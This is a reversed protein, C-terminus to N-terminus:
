LTVFGGDGEHGETATAEAEDIKEMMVEVEIRAFPLSLEFAAYANMGLTSPEPLDVLQPAVAAPADHSQAAAEACCNAGM